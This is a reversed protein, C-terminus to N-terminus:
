RESDALDKRTDLGLALQNNVEAAFVESDLLPLDFKSEFSSGLQHMTFDPRPPLRDSWEVGARYVFWIDWAYFGDLGLVEDYLRGIIGSDEWYHTPNGGTVLGMTPQVDAETAGLTPVHVILTRLRPDRNGAL